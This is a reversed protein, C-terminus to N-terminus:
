RSIERRAIDHLAALGALLTLQEAPTDVNHSSFKYGEGERFNWDAPNIGCGNGPCSVILGGRNTSAEFRHQAVMDLRSGFMKKYATVMATVASPYQANEPGSALWRQLVIGIEGHLSSNRRGASAEFTILQPFATPVEQDYYPLRLTLISLSTSIEDARRWDYRLEKGEGECPICSEDYDADRGTGGCRDCDSDTKVKITPLEISFEYFGDKEGRNRLAENFGFNGRLDGKFDGLELTKQFSLVIPADPKISLANAYSQHVRLVLTPGENEWSLEHWCPLTEFLITKFERRAREPAQQNQGVSQLGPSGNEQTM